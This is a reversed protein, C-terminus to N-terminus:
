DIWVIKLSPTLKKFEKDGTVLFAKNKEALAAAFCNAYAIRHKGKLKAAVFTLAKDVDILQIPFQNFRNIVAKAAPEGAERLTNYYMEGWNIVSMLGKAKKQVIINLIESVKEAGKENEFFAIMAYSDLIYTKM